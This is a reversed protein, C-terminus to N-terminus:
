DIYIPVVFTNKGKKGPKLKGGVARITNGSVKIECDCSLVIANKQNTLHIKNGRSKKSLRYANFSKSSYDSPVVISHLIGDSNKFSLAKFKSHDVTVSSYGSRNNGNFTVGALKNKSANNLSEYRFDTLWPFSDRIQSKGSM